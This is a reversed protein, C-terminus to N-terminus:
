LKWIVKRRTSPRRALYATLIFGDDDSVERYAVILCKNTLPTKEYRRIAPLEGFDGARIIEPVNVTELVQDRM